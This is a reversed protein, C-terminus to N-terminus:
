QLVNLMTDSELGVPPLGLRQRIADIAAQKRAARAEDSIQYQGARTQVAEQRAQADTLQAVVDDPSMGQNVLSTISDSTSPTPVMASNPATFGNSGGATPLGPLRQAPPAVVDRGSADLPPLGQQKRQANLADLMLRTQLARANANETREGAQARIEGVQADAVRGRTMSDKQAILDQLRRHLAENRLNESALATDGREKELRNAEGETALTQNVLQGTQQKNKGTMEVMRNLRDNRQTEDLRQQEIDQMDLDHARGQSITPGHLFKDLGTAPTPAYDPQMYNKVGAELGQTAVNGVISLLIKEWAKPEKSYTQVPINYPMQMNPMGGLQATPLAM